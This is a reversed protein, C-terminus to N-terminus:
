APSIAINDILRVAGLSAAALLRAPQDLTTMPALGDEARLELYEVDGFGAALIMAQAAGLAAPVPTGAEIAEGAARMAQHMKPAILREDASLRENRSSLALGDAERVTGCGKIEIPLDLDRVLRRVVQLQQFDKEGFTAVDAGTQTFIKTVVTAVGDFHGPRHAGCLGESVGSVRVGTSFQDPYVEGVDPAYLADVGVSRLKAADEELHRPYKELDDANNFQIPNVFIWAVVRDAEQKAAEVLSLHGAHLAGMTPVVAVRAGDGRWEDRLSRMDALTTILKM